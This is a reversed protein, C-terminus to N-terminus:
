SLLKDATETVDEVVLVAGRRRHGTRKHVM